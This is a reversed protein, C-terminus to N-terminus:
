RLCKVYLKRMTSISAKMIFCGTMQKNICKCGATRSFVNIIYPMITRILITVSLPLWKKNTQAKITACRELQTVLSGM